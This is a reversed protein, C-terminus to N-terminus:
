PICLAHVISQYVPIIWYPNLREYTQNFAHRDKRKINEVIMKKMTYQCMSFGLKTSYDDLDIVDDWDIEDSIMM